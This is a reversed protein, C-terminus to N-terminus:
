MKALTYITPSLKGLMQYVGWQCNALESVYEKEGYEAILRERNRRMRAIRLLQKSTTQPGAEEGYERWESSLVDAEVLSFGAAAFAQAFYAPTMNEPKSALPLCLQETEAPTLLDTKLMHFILMKGNPKLVRACDAFLQWLDPIHTLVDRCWIFDFSKAPLPLQQIDGQIIQVSQGLKKDAIRTKANLLNDRVLDVGVVRCGFRQSLECAQAAYRCGIDLVVSEPTPGLGAFKEYLVDPSRPNLSQDLVDLFSLYSEESGAYMEEVSVTIPQM